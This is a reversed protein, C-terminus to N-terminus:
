LAAPLEPSAAVLYPLEDVQEESGNAIEDHALQFLRRDFVREGM